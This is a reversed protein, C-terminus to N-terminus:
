TLVTRQGDPGSDLIERIRALADLTHLVARVIRGPLACRRVITDIDADIELMDGPGLVLTDPYPDGVSYRAPRQAIRKGILRKGCSRGGGRKGLRPKM